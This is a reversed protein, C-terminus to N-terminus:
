IIDEKHLVMIDANEYNGTAAMKSLNKAARKEASKIADKGIRVSDRIPNESKSAVLMRIREELIEDAYVDIEYDKEILYDFVFGKLEAPRYEEPLHIRNNFLQNLETNDRLLRNIAKRDDELFILSRGAMAAILGQMKEVTEGSLLGAREVILCCDM